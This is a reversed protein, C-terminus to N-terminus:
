LPGGAEHAPIEALVKLTGEETAFLETPMLGVLALNKTQMYTAAVESGLRAEVECEVLRFRDGQTTPITAPADM